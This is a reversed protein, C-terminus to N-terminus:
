KVWIRTVRGVKETSGKEVNFYIQMGLKLDKLKIVGTGNLIYKKHGISIWQGKADIADVRGTEGFKTTLVSSDAPSIITVAQIFPSDLLVFLLLFLQLYKM